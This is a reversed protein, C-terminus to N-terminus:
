ILVGFTPKSFCTRPISHVTEALRAGLAADWCLDFDNSNPSKENLLGLDPLKKAAILRATFKDVSNVDCFSVHLTLMPLLMQSLYAPTFDDRLEGAFFRGLYQANLCPLPRPQEIGFDINHEN